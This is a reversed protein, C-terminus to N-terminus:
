KKNQSVIKRAEKSSMKNDRNFVLNEDYGYVDLGKDQIFDYLNIVGELTDHEAQTISKKGQLEILVRKQAKLLKWDMNHILERITQIDDAATSKDNTRAPQVVIKLKKDQNKM